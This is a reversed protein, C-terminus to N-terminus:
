DDFIFWVHQILISGAKKRQQGAQEERAVTVIGGLGPAVEPDTKRLMLVLGKVLGSVGIAKFIRDIGIDQFVSRKEVVPGGVGPPYIDIERSEIGTNIHAVAFYAGITEIFQSLVGVFQGKFM